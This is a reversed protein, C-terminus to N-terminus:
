VKDKPEAKNADSGYTNRPPLPLSFRRNQAVFSISNQELRDLTDFYDKIGEVTSQRILRKRGNTKDWVSTTPIVPNTKLNKELELTLSRSDNKMYINNSEIREIVDSASSVEDFNLHDMTFTDSIPQDEIITNKSIIEARINTSEINDSSSFTCKDHSCDDAVESSALHSNRSAEEKDENRLQVKASNMILSKSFVEGNTEQTNSSKDNEETAM